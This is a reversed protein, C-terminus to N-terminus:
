NVKIVLADDKFHRFERDSVQVTNALFIGLDTLATKKFLHYAGKLGGHGDNDGPLPLIIFLNGIQLDGFMLPECEVARAQTWKARIEAGLWLRSDKDAMKM